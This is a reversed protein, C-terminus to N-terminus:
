GLDLLNITQKQNKAIKSSVKGSGYVMGYDTATALKPNIYYKTGIDSCAKNYNDSTPGGKLWDTPYQTSNTINGRWCLHPGPTTMPYSVNTPRNNIKETVTM